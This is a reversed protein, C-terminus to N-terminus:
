FRWILCAFFCGELADLINTFLPFLFFSTFWPKRSLSYFCFVFAICDWLASPQKTFSTLIYCLVSTFTFTVWDKRVRQSGMSQVTWPIRWALISSHTAMLEERRWPSRGLGPILGLDGVNCTSEKGASSGPFCLTVHMYVLITSVLWFAWLWVAIHFKVGYKSTHSSKLGM